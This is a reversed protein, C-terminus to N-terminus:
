RHERNAARELLTQVGGTCWGFLLWAIAGVVLALDFYLLACELLTCDGFFPFSYGAATEGPPPLRPFRLARWSWWRYVVLATSLALAGTFVWRLREAGRRAPRARSPAAESMPAPAGHQFRENIDSFDVPPSKQAMAFLAPVTWAHVWAGGDRRRVPMTETVTGARVLRVLEGFSVPGHDDDGLKYHWTSM